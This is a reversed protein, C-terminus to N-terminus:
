PLDGPVARFVGAADGPTDKGALRHVSYLKEDELGTMNTPSENGVQRHQRGLENAAILVAEGATDARVIVERWRPFGLWRPDDATANPVIKWLPM